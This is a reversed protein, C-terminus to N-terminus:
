AKRRDVVYVPVIPAERGYQQYHGNRSEGREPNM